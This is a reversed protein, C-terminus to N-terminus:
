DGRKGAARRRAQPAPLGVASGRYVPASRPTFPLGGLPTGASGEHPLVAKLGRLYGGRRSASPSASPSTRLERSAATRPEPRQSPGVRPWSSIDAAAGFFAGGLNTHAPTLANMAYAVIAVVLIRIRGNAAM